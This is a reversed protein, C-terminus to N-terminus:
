ASALAAGHIRARRGRWWLAVTGVAGLALGGAALMAAGGPGVLMAISAITTAWAAAGLANAMAFRRWPMRTAGAMVAAVVRM